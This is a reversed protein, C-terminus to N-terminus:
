KKQMMLAGAFLLIAGGIKWPNIPNKDVGLWGFHDIAIAAVLQGLVNGAILPAAGAQKVAIIGVLVAAVSFLGGGLAWWPAGLVGSLDPKEFAGTFTLALMAVCGIAFAIAIALPPSVVAERLRANMAAQIPIGAGTLVILVILGVKM